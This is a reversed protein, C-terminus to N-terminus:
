LDRLRQFNIITNILDKKYKELYRQFLGSNEIDLIKQVQYIVDEVDKLIDDTTYKTGEYKLVTYDGCHAYDWGIWYGDQEEESYTLGGHVIIPIEEYTCGNYICREPMKVYATPHSGLNKIKFDIGNIEGRCIIKTGEKIGGCLNRSSALKLSLNLM